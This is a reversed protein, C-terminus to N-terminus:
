DCRNDPILSADFEDILRDWTIPGVIGDATLGYQLQFATVANRTSPGFIGDVQLAPWNFGHTARLGNLYSQILAVSDGCSGSRQLTGPYPPSLFVLEAEDTEELVAPEEPIETVPAHEAVTSPAIAAPQENVQDVNRMAKYLISDDHSVAHHLTDSPPNLTATEDENPNGLAEAVAPEQSIEAVAPEEVVTIVEYLPAEPEGLQYAPTSEAPTEVAPAHEVVTPPAIAAPQENVQDVNRLAKYLISDDHSVAHHQADSPPNLTATEDENPYELVEAVAPEQSIEAVAPEEVVTIVEYLPAEPEGLQYAPASEAPTEVVPAHANAEESVTSVTPEEVVPTAEYLPAAPEASQYAPTSVVPAEVAPVHRAVAPPTITVAPIPVPTVAVESDPQENVQSINRWVKYMLNMAGKEELIHLFFLFHTPLATM